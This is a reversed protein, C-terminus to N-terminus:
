NSNKRFDTVFKVVAGDKDYGVYRPYLGDGWGSSFMIINGNAKKPKYDIGDIGKAVEDYKKLVDNYFNANKDNAYFESIEEEFIQFTEIDAFCSLGCEVPYLGNIKKDIDDELFCEPILSYEWFVPIGPKVVIEAYVIRKAFAATLGIYLYVPYQGKAITWNQPFGYARYLPDTCVLRGTPLVLQGALCRKYIKHHELDHFDTYDFFVEEGFIIQTAIKNNSINNKKM